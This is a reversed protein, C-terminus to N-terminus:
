MKWYMTIIKSTIIETISGDVALGELFHRIEDEEKPSLKRHLKAREICWNETEELTRKQEWVVDHYSVEPSYGKLWLYAFTNLSVDDMEQAQQTIGVLAFARDLVSDTRRAPKVTFCHETACSLMKELTHHDSVAPTMHAMVVQFNKEWGLAAVDASDWNDVSFHVNEAELERAKKRAAAIMKESIDTGTVERVHGALALAYTGAGCGVDLVKAGAMEPVKEQFYKLFPDQDMKPIAMSAFFKARDNWIKAQHRSWNQDTHVWEKKLQKM